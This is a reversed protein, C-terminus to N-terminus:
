QRLSRAPGPGHVGGDQSRRVHNDRGPHAAAAPWWWVSGWVVLGIGCAKAAAQFVLTHPDFGIATYDPNHLGGDLAGPFPYDTVGHARMCEATQLGKLAAARYQAAKRAGTVALKLCARFAADYGPASLMGPPPPPPHVLTGDPAQQLIQFGTVGHSRMCRSYALSQLYLRSPAAPKPSSGGCAAALLVTGTLTAVVRAARPWGGLGGARPRSSCARTISMEVTGGKTM